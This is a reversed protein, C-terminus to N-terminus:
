LQILFSTLPFLFSPPHSKTVELKSHDSFGIECINGSIPSILEQVTSVSQKGAEDKPEPNERAKRVAACIDENQYISTSPAHLFTKLGSLTWMSFGNENGFAYFGSIGEKAGRDTFDRWSYKKDPIDRLLYNWVVRSLGVGGTKIFFVGGGVLVLMILFLLALWWKGRSM